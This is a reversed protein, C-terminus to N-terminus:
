RRTARARRRPVRSGAERLLTEIVQSLQEVVHIATLGLLSEHEPTLPLGDLARFVEQGHRVDLVAHQYLTRLAPRGLGWRRAIADLAAPTMPSGEVVALYAMVAVPHAHLVWYYLTGILTAVEPAPTRALVDRRAHGLHELDQLLWEDHGTEERIHRTYYPVLKAAVPCTPALELARHRAAEMLPVSARM